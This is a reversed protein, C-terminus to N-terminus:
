TLLDVLIKEYIVSLEDIERISVREDIKHITANVPGLEVVEAGSPAIFRGDSTGGATCLEPARGTIEMVSASVADILDGRPTHFPHGSLAWDLTYELDHDRCYREVEGQLQEATFEPSFRFNFDVDVEGPIVNSVGTGGHINSIQFSTPPFHEDGQCWERSCLQDLLPIARHIPNDALHPYAVHGQRGRITLRGNLSGRRGIKIVDGLRRTSSPEGILCWDIVEGRDNLTDMVARTGWRAPGEEDSTVLFAISGAPEPHDHLFRECATVMAAISSKMDAAGRGWLWEGDVAAAFPDHRWQEPPGTPVVDTHGAFVFLPAADGRRAWLNDVEEFRMPELAFGMAALREALLEQCGADDPTISPRRILTRALQLTPSETM